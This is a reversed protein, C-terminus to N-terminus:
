TSSASRPRFSRRTSRGPAALILPVEVIEDYLTAGHMHYTGKVATKDAFREGWSEGHDSLFAIATQERLRLGELAQSSPRSSSRRSASWRRGTARTCHRSRRRTAPSSGPSSRRRPRKWEGRETHLDDYPMHTAWSHFWLCFPDPGHARLWTSRATWGSREDGRRERGAFGRFLYNEDFVFSGTQLRLRFRGHVANAAGPRAAADWHLYGHPAPLPGTIMSATSPATWARRQDGPRLAGGGAAFADITPTRVRRAGYCGVHDVRLADAVYVVLNM